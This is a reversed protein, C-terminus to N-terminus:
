GLPLGNKTWQVAGKRDGVSCSLIAAEGQLVVTDSPSISFHQVGAASFFTHQLLNSNKLNM